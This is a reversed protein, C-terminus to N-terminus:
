QKEQPHNYSINKQVWKINGTFNINIWKEYPLQEFSQVLHERLQDQESISDLKSNKEIVYDIEIIIKNGVKGLRLTKDSFDYNRDVSEIKHNILNTVEEPPTAQLLDRVCDKIALIPLRCFIGTIFITMVPDVYPIYVVLDTLSLAWSFSFGLLIGASILVSFKWQAIEVEAITTSINKTLFRLYMYVSINFIAAFNGYMIGSAINVENGGEFIVQTATAINSICIYLIIGYQVIAVFPEFTEKGFPFNNTDRKDIFKMAAISFYTLVVGVLNFIGDFLIVQSSTLIGIISAIIAFITTFIISSLLVKQNVIETSM